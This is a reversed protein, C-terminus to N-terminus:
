TASSNTATLRPAGVQARLERYLRAHAQAIREWSREERYARSRESLKQRLHPQELLDRIEDSLPRELTHVASRMDDFIPARSVALARGVALARRGAGSAGQNNGTRYNLVLLDAAQLELTTREESLFEGTLHVAGQLGLSRVEAQLRALYERSAATPFTGGCVRYTLEPFGHARLEAIASLVEEIGKDPHLFGFHSVIPAAVPLGLERRAQEPSREPISWIGHAIVHVRPHDLEARQDLEHVVLDANRLALLTRRFAWNRFRSGGGRDHLTAILPLKAHACLKSLAYLFRPSTLGLSVQVHVVEAGAERLKRFTQLAQLLTARDRKWIRPHQPGRPGDGPRLRPSLVIPEIGQEPLAGVLAESYTAIGCTEGFTSLLAVRM